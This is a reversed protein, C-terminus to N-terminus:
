KTLVLNQKQLIEGFNDMVKIEYLGPEIKKNSFNNKGKKLKQTLVCRGQQDYLNLFCYNNKSSPLIFNGNISQTNEFVILSNVLKHEKLEFERTIIEFNDINVTLWNNTCKYVLAVFVSDGQAPVVFNVDNWKSNNQAFRSLNVIEVFEGLRPNRNKKGIWVGFYDTYDAKGGAAFLILQFKFVTEESLNLCPSVLFDFVTDLKTANNPYDHFLCFPKSFALSTSFNWNNQHKKNLRFEQWFEREKPNDFNSQFPLNLGQSFSHFFFANFFLILSFYFILKRRTNV